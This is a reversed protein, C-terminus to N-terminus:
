GPGANTILRALEQATGVTRREGYRVIVQGDHPAGPALEIVLLDPFTAILAAMVDARAAISDVIVTDPSLAGNTLAPSWSELRRVTMDPETRLGAEIAALYLSRGILLVSRHTPRPEAM